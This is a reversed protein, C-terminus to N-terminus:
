LCCAAGPASDLEAAARWEYRAISNVASYLYWMLPPFHRRSFSCNQHLTPHHHHLSDFPLTSPWCCPCFSCFLLTNFFCLPNYQHSSQLHVEINSTQIHILCCLVAYDNIIKDSLIECSHPFSHPLMKICCGHWGLCSTICKTPIYKFVTKKKQKCARLFIVYHVKLYLKAM